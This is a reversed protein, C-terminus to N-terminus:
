YLPSLALLCPRLQWLGARWCATNRTRSGMRAHMSSGKGRICWGQGVRVRTPGLSAGARGSPGSGGGAGTAPARARAFGGQAAARCSGAAERKRWARGVRSTCAAGGGAAGGFAWEQSGRGPGRISFRLAQPRGRGAGGRGRRSYGGGGGPKFELLGGGGQGGREGRGGRGFGRRSAARRPRARGGAAGRSSVRGARGLDARWGGGVGLGGRAHRPRRGRLGARRGRRASRM